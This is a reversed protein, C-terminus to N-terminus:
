HRSFGLGTNQCASVILEAVRIQALPLDRVVPPDATRPRPPEHDPLPTTGVRRLGWGRSCTSGRRPPDARYRGSGIEALLARTTLAGDSGGLVARRVIERLDSGSTREPLRAAVAACDVEGPMNEVLAALIRAAAATDPYGVEVISDFRGTRVAAADLTAPDNTSALTLIRADSAIDMAQLLEGLGGGGGRRDRVFLDVDELVIVVPGGLRQAEEIVKTLLYKGANAEVYIVTFGAEVAETAVVASVASKGTGPPGALLIGRRSALGHANLFAHRDRVAAIGLDIDRWVGADVVVTERRLAAPLSMASFRLVEGAGARVIRGRYPHLAYARAMLTDLVERAEVQHGRTVFATIEPEHHVGTRADIGIVMPAGHLLTGAPFIARLLKPHHYATEGVTTQTYSPPTTYDEPGLEADYRSILEGLALAVSTAQVGNLYTSEYLIGSWGAVGLGRVTFMEETEHDALDRTTGVLLDGLARLAQASDDPLADIWAAADTIPAQAARTTGTETLTM